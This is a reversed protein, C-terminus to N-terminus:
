DNAYFWTLPVRAQVLDCRKHGTPFIRYHVLAHDGVFTVGAYEAWQDANTELAKPLGL